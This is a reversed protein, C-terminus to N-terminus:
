SVQMRGGNAVIPWYTFPREKLRKRCLARPFPFNYLQDDHWITALMGMPSRVELSVKLMVMREHGNHSSYPKRVIMAFLCFCSELLSSTPKSVLSQLVYLQRPFSYRHARSTQCSIPSKSDLIHSSSNKM